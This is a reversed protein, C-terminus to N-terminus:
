LYPIYIGLMCTTYAVRLEDQKVKLQSELLHARQRQEDLTKTKSKENVWKQFMERSDRKNRRSLDNLKQRWSQELRFVEDQHRADSNRVWDDFQRRQEEAAKRHFDECAELKSQSDFIQRRLRENESPTSTQDRYMRSHERSARHPEPARWPAQNRNTRRYM